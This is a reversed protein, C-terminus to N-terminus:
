FMDSRELVTRFRDNNFGMLKILLTQSIQFFCWAHKVVHTDSFGHIPPTPDARPLSTKPCIKWMKRSFVPDSEVTIEYHVWIDLGWSQSRNTRDCSEELHKDLIHGFNQVCKPCIKSVHKLARFPESIQDSNIGVHWSLNFLNPLFSMHIRRSPSWQGRLVAQNFDVVFPLNNLVINFWKRDFVGPRFCYFYRSKDM